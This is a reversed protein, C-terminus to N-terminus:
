APSRLVTLGGQSIIEYPPNNQVPMTRFWMDRVVGFPTYFHAM